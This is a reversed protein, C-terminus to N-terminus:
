QKVGNLLKKLQLTILTKGLYEDPNQSLIFYDGLKIIADEYKDGYKLLTTLVQKLLEHYTTKAIIKNASQLDNLKIAKIYEMIRFSTEPMTGGILYQFLLNTFSRASGDSSEILKNIIDESPADRGENQCINIAVKKLSESDLGNFYFEACRDYLAPIIKADYNCAFMFLTVNSYDEMMRRLLWQSNPTLADAEDMFLIKRTGKEPIQKVISFIENEMDDIKRYQSANMDIIELDYQNAIAHAMTTKGVGPPGYFIVHPWKSIDSKGVNRFFTVVREQGIVEDLNKPRFEETWQM